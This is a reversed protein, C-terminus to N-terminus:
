AAEPLLEDHDEPSEETDIAEELETTDPEVILRPNVPGVPLKGELWDCFLTRMRESPIYVTIPRGERIQSRWVWQTMTLLAYYDESIGVGADEFYARIFPHHYLNVLYALSKRDRYKNTSRSNCSEFARAYRDGALKSRFTKFTAWLNEGSKTDAKHRFFNYTANKLTGVLKGGRKVDSKFWSV